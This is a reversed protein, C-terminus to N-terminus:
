KTFEAAYEVGTSIGHTSSLTVQADAVVMGKLTLPMERSVDQAVTQGAADVFSVTVAGTKVRVTIQMQVSSGAKLAHLDFQLTNAGSLQDLSGSCTERGQTTTCTMGGAGGSSCAALLLLVTVLVRVRTM